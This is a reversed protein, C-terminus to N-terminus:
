TGYSPLSFSSWSQWQNWSVVSPPYLNILFKHFSVIRGDEYRYCPIVYKTKMPRCCTPCCNPPAACSSQRPTSPRCRQQKSAPPPNCEGCDSEATSNECCPERKSRPPKECCYVIQGKPCRPLCPYCVPPDECCKTPLCPAILMPTVAYEGCDEPYCCAM